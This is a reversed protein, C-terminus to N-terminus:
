ASNITPTICHYQLYLALELKLLRLYIRRKEKDKSEVKARLVKICGLVEKYCQNAMLKDM